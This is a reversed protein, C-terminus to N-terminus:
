KEYKDGITKFILGDHSLNTQINIVYDINKINNIEKRTKNFYIKKIGLFDSNSDISLRILDDVDKKISNNLNNLVYEKVDNKSINIDELQSFYGDIKIDILLKDDYTMKVKHNTLEFVLMNSDYITKYYYNTNVNNLLNFSQIMNLDLVETAKNGSFVIAENIIYDDEQVKGVPLIIDKYDNLYLKLFEDFKINIINNTSNNFINKIYEGAIKNKENLFKITEKYNDDIVINFNSGFSIDRTLYDIIFNMKNNATDQDILIVNLDIFYLNRDIKLSLEQIAKELSSGSASHVTSADIDDKINERLELTVNYENNDWKIAMLTVIGIDNLEIYNCGASVLCTLCIILGLLFKRM